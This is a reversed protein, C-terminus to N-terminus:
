LRVLMRNPPMRCVTAYHRFSVDHFIKDDSEHRDDGHYHGRRCESIPVIRAVTGLMMPMARACTPLDDVNGSANCNTGDDEGNRPPCHLGNGGCRLLNDVSLRCRPDHINDCAVWSREDPTISQHVGVWAITLIRPWADNATDPTASRGFNCYGDCLSLFSENGSEAATKKM